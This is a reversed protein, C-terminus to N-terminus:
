ARHYSSKAEHQLFKAVIPRLFSKVKTKLVQKAFEVRCRSDTYPCGDLWKVFVINCHDNCLKYSVKRYGARLGIEIMHTNNEHTDFMTRTFGNKRSEMERMEYLQKYIGQGRYQPLVAAFCFYAYEGKGCWLDTKRTKVAATGVVKDDDLAVFMKGVGEIHERIEEGSLSPLRMNIGHTRNDEHAKWIVDHIEDWSVWEPKEVIQVM